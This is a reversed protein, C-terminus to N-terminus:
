LPTEKQRTHQQSAVEDFRNQQRHKEQEAIKKKLNGQAIEYKKQEGFELAIKDRKEEIKDMLRKIEEGLKALKNRTHASYSGFFSALAPDKAVIHIEQEHENHLKEALMQLQHLEEEFAVMERRLLDTQQKHIKILTGLTKVSM